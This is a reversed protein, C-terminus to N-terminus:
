RQRKAVRHHLTANYLIDNTDIACLRKPYKSEKGDRKRVERSECAADHMGNCM